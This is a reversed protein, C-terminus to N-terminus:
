AHVEYRVGGRREGNCLRGFFLLGKGKLVVSDKKILLEVGGERVVCTGNTSTDVLVIQDSNKEIRCHHRSMRDGAVVLDSLPDRGVTLLPNDKSLELQIQDYNLVLYAGVPRSPKSSPWVSESGSASSPIGCRWDVKYALSGAPLDGLPVALKRLEPSLALVVTESVVIGDNDVSLQSAIEWSNDVGDKSRERVVGHHIGIRLALRRASVQPLVACRHQIECAALLAADATGFFMQLGRSLRRDIQGLYTAVVREIRNLRRELPHGAMADDFDAPVVGIDVLEAHVLYKSRTASM